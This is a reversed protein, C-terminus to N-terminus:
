REDIRESALTGGGLVPRQQREALPQTGRREEGEAIHGVAVWRLQTGVVAAARAAVLDFKVRRPVLQHATQYRFAQV